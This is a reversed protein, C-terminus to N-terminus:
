NGGVHYEQEGFMRFISSVVRPRGFVASYVDGDEQTHRLCRYEGGAEEILELTIMPFLDGPKRETDLKRNATHHKLVSSVERWM